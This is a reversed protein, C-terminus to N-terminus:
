IIREIVASSLLYRWEVSGLCRVRYRLQYLGLNRVNPVRIRIGAVPPFILLVGATVDVAGFSLQEPRSGAVVVIVSLMYWRISITTFISDIREEHTKLIQKLENLQTQQEHLAKLISKRFYEIVNVLYTFIFGSNKYLFYM